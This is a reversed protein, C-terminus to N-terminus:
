SSDKGVRGRVAQNLVKRTLYLITRGLMPTFPNRRTAALLLHFAEGYDGLDVAKAAWIRLNRALLYWNKLLQSELRRMAEDERRELIDTGDARRQRELENLIEVVILKREDSLMNTTPAIPITNM